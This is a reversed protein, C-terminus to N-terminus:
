FYCTRNSQSNHWTDLTNCLSSSPSRKIAYANDPCVQRYHLLKSISSSLTSSIAVKAVCVVQQSVKAFSYSRMFLHPHVRFLTKQYLTWLCGHHHKRKTLEKNRRKLYLTLIWHKQKLTQENSLLKPISWCLPSSVAVQPIRIDKQPFKFHCSFM